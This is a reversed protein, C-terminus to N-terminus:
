SSIDIRRKTQNTTTMLPSPSRQYLSPNNALSLGDSNDFNNISPKASHMNTITSIEQDLKLIEDKVQELDANMAHPMRSDISGMKSTKNTSVVREYSNQIIRDYNLTNFQMKALERKQSLQEDFLPKYSSDQKCDTKKRSQSRNQSREHQSETLDRNNRKPTLEKPGKAPVATQKKNKNQDPM